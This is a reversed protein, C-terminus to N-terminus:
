TEDYQKWVVVLMYLQLIQQDDKHSGFNVSNIEM